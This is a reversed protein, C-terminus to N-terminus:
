RGAERELWYYELAQEIVPDHGDSALRWWLYAVVAGVEAATFAAFDARAREGMTGGGWAAAVRRAGGQPTVFTCLRSLPDASSLGGEIDAVLYAPLYFRLAPASFFALASAWGDPAQDLFAADLARWDDRGRFAKRLAAPEEGYSSDTLADDGPYPVDAFAEVIRAILETERIPESM